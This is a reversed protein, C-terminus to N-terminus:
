KVLGFRKLVFYVLVVVGFSIIVVMWSFAAPPRTKNKSDSSNTANADLKSSNSENSISAIGKSKETNEKKNSTAKRNTKEQSVMQEIMYQKGISDPPSYKTTTTIKTTVEDVESMDVKCTSDKEVAKTASVKSADVVSSVKSTNNESTVKATGCGWLNIISFILGTILLFNKM